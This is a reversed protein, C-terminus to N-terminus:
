TGGERKRVLKDAFDAHEPESGSTCSSSLRGAVVNSNNTERKKTIDFFGDFDGDCLYVFKKMQAFLKEFFNFIEREFKKDSV